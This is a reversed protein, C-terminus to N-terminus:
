GKARPGSKRQELARGSAFRYRLLTHVAEFWDWVGIKKGDRRSRPAYRIPVEHIRIGRRAVLATVEPCFEFRECKLPLSRLLETRFAKYCTPEDTIGTHYLLNTILTLSTGGMLFMWSGTPNSSLLRRSGYVVQVDPDSFPAVVADYDNPDYELDADQILVIDGTVHEIGTRVAAGKGRNQEHTVVRVAPHERYRELIEPTRDSSGDDVAVIEPHLPSALVQLLLEELHSQENYIPVVISLTM